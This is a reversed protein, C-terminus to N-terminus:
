LRFFYIISAGAFSFLSSILNFSLLFIGIIGFIAFLIIRVDEHEVVSVAVEVM